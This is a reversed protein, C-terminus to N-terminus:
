RYPMLTNPLEATQRLHLLPSQSRSWFSAPVETVRSPPPMRKARPQRDSNQHADDKLFPRLGYTAMDELIKFRPYGEFGKVREATLGVPIQDQRLRVLRALRAERSMEESGRMFIEMDGRMREEDLVAGDTGEQPKVRMLSEVRDLFDVLEM